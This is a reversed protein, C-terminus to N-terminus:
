PRTECIHNPGGKLIADTMDEFSVTGDPGAVFGYNMPTLAGTTFKAARADLWVTQERTSDHATVWIETKPDAAWPQQNLWSVACGIDDFVHSKHKAGGRVQTVFGAESIMMKCLECVDRDWHVEAPGTEEEFCASVTFLVFLVPFFVRALKTM